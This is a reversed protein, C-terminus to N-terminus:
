SFVNATAHSCLFNPNRACFMKKKPHFLNAVSVFELEASEADNRLNVRGGAARAGYRAVRLVAARDQTGIAPEV